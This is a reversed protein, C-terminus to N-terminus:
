KTAWERAARARPNAVSQVERQEAAPRAARVLDQKLLHASVALLVPAQLTEVLTQLRTECGSRNVGMGAVVVPRTANGISAALSHM